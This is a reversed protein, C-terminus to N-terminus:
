PWGCRLRAECLAEDRARALEAIADDLIPKVSRLADLMSRQLVVVSSPEAAVVDAAAFHEDIAADVTEAVISGAAYGEESGSVNLKGSAVIAVGDVPEAAKCLAEGEAIARTAFFKGIFELDDTAATVFYWLARLMAVKIQISGDPNKQLGQSQSYIEAFAGGRQQLEEFTGSEVINGKEVVVVEDFLPAFSLDHTVVM